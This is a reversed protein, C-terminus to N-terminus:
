DALKRLFTVTKSLRRGAETEGPARTGDRGILPRPQSQSTFVPSLSSSSASHFHPQHLPSIEQNAAHLPNVEKIQVSLEKNSVAAALRSVPFLATIFDTTIFTSSEHSSCSIYLNLTILLCSHRKKMM